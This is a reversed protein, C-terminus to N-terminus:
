KSLREKLFAVNEEFRKILKHICEPCTVQRFTSVAVQRVDHGEIVETWDESCLLRVRLVARRHSKAIYFHVGGSM